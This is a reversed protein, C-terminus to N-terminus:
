LPCALKGEEAVAWAEAWVVAVVLGVWVAESEEEEVM